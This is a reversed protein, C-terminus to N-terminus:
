NISRNRYFLHHQLTSYIFGAVFQYLHYYDVHVWVYDSCNSQIILMKNKEDSGMKM